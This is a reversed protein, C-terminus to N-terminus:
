KQAKFGFTTAYTQIQLVSPPLPLSAESMALELVALAGYLSRIKLIFCFLVLFCSFEIQAHKPILCTFM